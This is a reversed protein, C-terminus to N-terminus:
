SQGEIHTLVARVESYIDPEYKDEGGRRKWIEHSHRYLASLLERLKALESSERKTSKLRGVEKLLWEWEGQQPHKVGGPYLLNCLDARWCEDPQEKTAAPQRMLVRVADYNDVLWKREASDYIEYIDDIPM